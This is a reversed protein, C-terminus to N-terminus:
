RAEEMEDKLAKCHSRLQESERKMKSNRQEFDQSRRPPLSPSVLSNQLSDKVLSFVKLKQLRRASRNQCVEKNQASKARWRSIAQQIKEELRERTLVAAALQADKEVLEKYEQSNKATAARHRQLGSDILERLRQTKQDLISKMQHQSEISRNLLAEYEAGREVTEEHAKTAEEKSLQWRM